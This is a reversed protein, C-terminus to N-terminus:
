LVAEEFAPHGVPSVNFKYFILGVPGKFDAGQFQDMGIADVVSIFLRVPAPQLFLILLFLTLIIDQYDLTVAYGVAKKGIHKEPVSAAPQGRVRGQKPSGHAPSWSKWM